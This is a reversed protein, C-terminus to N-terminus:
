IQIAKFFHPATSSLTMYSEWAALLFCPPSGNLAGRGQQVGIPRRPTMYSEWGASICLFVVAFM